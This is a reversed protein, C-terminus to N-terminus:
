KSFNFYNTYYNKLDENTEIKILDNGFKNISDVTAALREKEASTENLATLINKMNYLGQICFMRIYRDSTANGIMFYRNAFKDILSVKNQKKLYTNIQNLSSYSVDDNSSIISLMFDANSEDGYSSYFAAAVQQINKDSNTELSKVKAKAALLDKQAIGDIAASMVNYSSDNYLANLENLIKGNLSLLSLKEIAAVRVNSKINKNNAIEILEAGIQASDNSLLLQDINKIGIAQIKKNKDKMAAKFVTAISDNWPMTNLHDLAEKKDLYLNSNNFLTIWEQMSHDDMKSCTLMKEADFNVMLPKEPFRYSFSQNQETIIIRERIKSNPFYFDVDVPLKYLPTTKLDQLQSVSITQSMTSNDWNYTINLNPHGQNLFWQNFFWNLDEGTVEEFALRLDHVEASKLYNRQLYLKLSAFFAEDGVYKRLMHLITGGKAYSHRDFMDERNEYYFRILHEQKVKSEDLYNKLDSELGMDAEDRGYKYENWLYEGYTAFSENLPLNSWSECTALDGFWHHFLEHSIVDESNHDILERKTQQLFEGHLTASTNEMAGSVYDQVIVQSYKPWAYDVGLKKSFFELMEPTNGFIARADVEYKPEVYYSVEKNRWSDKVISFEGIAMMFLYPAHPMDMKWCDTRTKNPHPISSVLIGNSLTKFNDDVTINIEETSKQNPVDITPFWVSNSQTEGQTWIQRPKDKIKGDANIFYLGKDSTIADSGGVSKLEDPKATYNIYIIIKEDRNLNKLLSITITDNAYGYNLNLTDKNNISAVRKIEMGRADLYITNSAYFHPKMTITAEGYLYHKEWDFSVDLKTHILDFSKTVSAHYDNMSPAKVEVEPLQVATTEDTLSKQTKCAAILIIASFLLKKM